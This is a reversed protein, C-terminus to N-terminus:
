KKQIAAADIGADIFRLYMCVYLMPLVSGNIWIGIVVLDTIGNKSNDLEAQRMWNALNGKYVTEAMMGNRLLMQMERLAETYSM